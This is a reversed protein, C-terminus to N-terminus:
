KAEFFKLSRLLRIYWPEDGYKELERKLIEMDGMYPETYFMDKFDICGSMGNNYNLITIKPTNPYYQWGRRDYKFERCGLHLHTGANKNSGKIWYGLANVDSVVFGTNGTLAIKHGAKVKDGVKVLNFSNHGFTWERGGKSDENDSLIRVHKGFGSADDRVECVLGGEVAYVPTGWPFAIDIGSHGKTLNLGASKYLEVNEYLYQTVQGKPYYANIFGKFPNYIKTSM